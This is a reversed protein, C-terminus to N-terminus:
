RVRAPGLLELTMAVFQYYHDFGICIVAYIVEGLVISKYAKRDGSFGQGAVWFHDEAHVFGTLQDHPGTLFM